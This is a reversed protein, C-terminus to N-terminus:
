VHAQRRIKIARRYFWDYAGTLVCTLLLAGGAPVLSWSWVGLWDRFIRGNHVAFLFHWLSMDGAKGLPPMAPSPRNPPFSRMGHRYDAWWVLDRGRVAAGASMDQVPLKGSHFVEAGVPTGHVDTLHGGAADWIYLGSFSGVLLRNNSLAELVTAGMGSVPVVVGAPEFPASCDAPGRFFGSDTALVVARQEPWYTAKHIETGLPLAQRDITFLAAPATRGVIMMLFPPRLFMGALTIVLLFATALVGVGRHHRHFFPFLRAEKRIVNGRKRRWPVYWLYVASACLFILAAGVADALLRGTKGLLSGDHLKLFFRLLPERGQLPLSVVLPLKRLTPVKETVTVHYAAQPTFAIVGDGTDVIDVIDFLQPGGISTRWRADATAYAFLGNRTGALLYDAGNKEILLLCRTDRTYPTAPYGQDLIRFTRGNDRSQWVGAKGCVYLTGSDNESFVAERFSFRNWNRYGHSDPLFKLPVRWRAMGEPHNLLIGTLGMLLFYFLFLRGIYKHVPRTIRWLLRATTNM